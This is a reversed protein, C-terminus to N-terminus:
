RTREVIRLDGPSCGFKANYHSVVLTLRDAADERSAYGRSSGTSRFPLAGPWSVNSRDVIIFDTKTTM